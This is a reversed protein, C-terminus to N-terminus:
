SIRVYAERQSAPIDVMQKEWVELVDGEILIDELMIAKIRDRITKLRQVTAADPHIHIERDGIHAIIKLVNESADVDFSRSLSFLRGVKVTRSVM